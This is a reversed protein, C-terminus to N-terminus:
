KGMLAFIPAFILLFISDFAWESIEESIVEEAM